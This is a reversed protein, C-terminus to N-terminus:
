ANLNAGVVPPTLPKAAELEERTPEMEIRNILVRKHTSSIYPHDNVVRIIDDIWRM